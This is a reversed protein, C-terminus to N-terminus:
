EWFGEYQRGNRYRMVGKGHRKNNIVIGFYLADKYKVEKYGDVERVAALDVETSELVISGATVDEFKQM